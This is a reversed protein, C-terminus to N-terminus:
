RRKRSRRRRRTLRRALRHRAPDELGEALVGVLTELVFAHRRDEERPRAPDEEEEEISVLEAGHVQRHEVRAFFRSVSLGLGEVAHVFTEVRPGLGDNSLIKSIVNQQPRGDADVLGGTLAVSSQSAGRLKAARFAREYEARITKWEVYRGTYRRLKSMRKLIAGLTALCAPFRWVIRMFM